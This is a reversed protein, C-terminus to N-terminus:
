CPWTLSPYTSYNWRASKTLLDRAVRGVNSPFAGFSATSRQDSSAPHAPAPAKRAWTSCWTHPSLARPTTPAERPACRSSRDAAASLSLRQTRQDTARVWSPSSPSSSIQSKTGVKYHHRKKRHHIKMHAGINTPHSFADRSRCPLTCFKRCGSYVWMHLCGNWSSSDRKWAMMNGGLKRCGYWWWGRSCSACRTQHMSVMTAFEQVTYNYVQREHEVVM